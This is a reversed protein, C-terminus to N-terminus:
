PYVYEFTFPFFITFGLQVALVKQVTSPATTSPQDPYFTGIFGADLSLWSKPYFRLGAGVDAAVHPGESRPADSTASWVVGAGALLYGDFHIISSGLWAVKGYVPSWVGDLMLQGNVRSQLLQSQFAQAGERVHSSRLQTFWAGRLQVGFSDELNYGLKGGVGLKEYFADNVTAPAIVGLEFRHRKLFGKRQVAKVRDNLAVDSEGPALPAEERKAGRQAEAERRARAAADDRSREAQSPESLDLGPAEQPQGWALIPAAVLVLFTSTHRSLDL